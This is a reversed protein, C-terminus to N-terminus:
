RIANINHRHIAVPLMVLLEEIPRARQALAASEETLVDAPEIHAVACLDLFRTWDPETMTKVIERAAQRATFKLADEIVSPAPRTCAPRRKLATSDKVLEIM